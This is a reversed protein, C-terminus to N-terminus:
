TGLGLARGAWSLAILNAYQVMDSNVKNKNILKSSQGQV